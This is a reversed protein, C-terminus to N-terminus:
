AEPPGRGILSEEDILLKEYGIHYQRFGHKAHLARSAANEVGAESRLWSAGREKALMEVRRLMALGVGRRRHRPLVGIDDIEAFTLGYGQVDHFTAWVYGVAEGGTEWIEAITRPDDLSRALSGLYTEPQGSALWATRYAEYPAARAWATESEYNAACHLELLADRDGDVDVARQTLM